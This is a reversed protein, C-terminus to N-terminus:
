IKMAEVPKLKRLILIPYLVLIMSITLVILGHNLAISPDLSFPIVPDIGMEAM